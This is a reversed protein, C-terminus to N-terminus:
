KKLQFKDEPLISKLVTGFESLRFPKTLIGTFGFKPPDAMVEHDAYGSMAVTKVEPDIKKLTAATELGGTGGPITLDLLVLDFPSGQRFEERYKEVAENSNGATAVELGLRRCMQTAIDLLIEEDDMVLVRGPGNHPVMSSATSYDPTKQNGAPLLVTIETGQGPESTLSITGGHRSIISKVVALGKQIRQDVGTEFKPKFITRQQDKSLGCGNDAITIVAVSGNFGGELPEEADGRRISVSINGHESVANRANLLIENFAYALLPSDAGIIVPPGEGSISFSIDTKKLTKTAVTHLLEGIDTPTKETKGRASITSLQRTLERMRDFSQMSQRLRAAIESGPEISGLVLDIQGFLLGAVNNLDHAVAGAIVALSEISGNAEELQLQTDSVDCFLTVLSGGSIRCIQYERWGKKDSDNRHEIPMKVAIGTQVVSKMVSLVDNSRLEPLIETLQRGISERGPIGTIKETASNCAQLIFDDSDVQSSCVICGVPLANFTDSLLREFEGGDERTRHAVVERRVVGAVNEVTHDRALTVTLRMEAPIRKRDKAILQVHLPPVTVADGKERTHAAIARPIADCITSMSAATVFANPLLAAVEENTFGLMESVAENSYVIRNEISDLIFYIDNSQRILPNFKLLIDSVIQKHEDISSSPSGSGHRHPLHM